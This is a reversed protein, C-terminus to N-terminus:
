HNITTSGGAAHVAMADCSGQFFLQSAETLSCRYHHSWTSVHVSLSLQERDIMILARLAQQRVQLV